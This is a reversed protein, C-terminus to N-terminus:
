QAAKLLEHKFTEFDMLEDQRYQRWSEDIGEQEVWPWADSVERMAAVIRRAHSGIIRASEFDERDFCGDQSDLCGDLHLACERIFKRANADLSARANENPNFQTALLHEEEASQPKGIAAILQNRLQEREAHLVLLRILAKGATVLCDAMGTVCTIESDRCEALQQDFQAVGANANRWAEIGKRFAEDHGRMANTAAGIDAIQVTPM